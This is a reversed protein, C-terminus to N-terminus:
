LAVVKKEIIFAPRPKQTFRKGGAFDWQEKVEEFLHVKRRRYNPSTQVSHGNHIIPGYEGSVECEETVDVWQEPPDPPVCLRYESKPLYHFEIEDAVRVGPYVQWDTNSESNYLRGTVEWKEGQGSIHQVWKKEAM